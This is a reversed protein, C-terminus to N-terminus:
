MKIGLIYKELQVIHNFGQVLDEKTVFLTHLFPPLAHMTVFFFVILPVGHQAVSLKMKRSLVQELAVYVPCAIGVIFSCIVGISWLHKQPSPNVELCGKKSNWRIPRTYHIKDLIKFYGAFGSWALASYSM